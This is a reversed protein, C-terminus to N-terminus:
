LDMPRRKPWDLGKVLSHPAVYSGFVRMCNNAYM